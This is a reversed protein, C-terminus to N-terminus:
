SDYEVKAREEALGYPGCIHMEIYFHPTGLSRYASILGKKGKLEYISKAIIKIIEIFQSELDRSICLHESSLFKNVSKLLKRLWKLTYVQRMFQNKAPKYFFGAVGTQVLRKELEVIM